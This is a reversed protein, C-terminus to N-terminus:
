KKWKKPVVLRKKPKTDKEVLLEGMPTEELDEFDTLVSESLDVEEEMHIDLKVMGAAAANELESFARGDQTMIPEGDGTLEEYTPVKKMEEQKKLELDKWTDDIIKYQERIERYVPHMRVGGQATAYTMGELSAEVLKLKCLIRYLPILHMGIKFLQENTTGYFEDQILTLINGMYSYMVSCNKGLRKYACQAGVVCGETCKDIMDWVPFSVTSGDRGRIAIDRKQIRDPLDSDSM